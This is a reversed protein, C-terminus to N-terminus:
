EFRVALITYNRIGGPARVEVHDGEEKGILARAIPSSISIKGQDVDAEDIGVIQYIVEGGRNEDELLVTAGFIVKDSSLTRTAIVKANSVKIELERIKGEIFMQKEKAADYEANESLDGHAAAMQIEKIVAQRDFAKLKRVKERLDEYGQKTMVHNNM